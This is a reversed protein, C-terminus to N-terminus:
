SIYCFSAHSKLLTVVETQHFKIAINLVTDCSYTLTDCSFGQDLLEIVTEVHGNKAALHLANYGTSNRTHRDAGNSILLKVIQTHGNAAAILLATLGAATKTEICAKNDLLYQAIATAGYKAAVHLATEGYMNKINITTNDSRYILYKASELRNNQTAYHLPTNEKFDQTNILYGEDLLDKITDIYGKYASAHLPFQTNLWTLCRNHLNHIIESYCGVSNGNKTYVYNQARAESLVLKFCLACARIESLPIGNLAELPYSIDTDISYIITQTFFFLSMLIVIAVVKM